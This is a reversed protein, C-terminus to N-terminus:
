VEIRFRFKTKYQLHTKSAPYSLLVTTWLCSSGTEVRWCWCLFRSKLSNEYKARDMKCSHLKNQVEVSVTISSKYVCRAGKTASNMHCETDVTSLSSSWTDSTICLVTASHLLKSIQNQKRTRKLTVTTTSYM